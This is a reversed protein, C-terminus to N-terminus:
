YPVNLNVVIDQYGAATFKVQNLGSPIYFPNFQAIIGTSYLRSTQAGYYTWTSTGYPRWYADVRVGTNELQIKSHVNNYIAPTAPTSTYGPSQSISAGAVSNGGPQAPPRKVSISYQIMRIPMAAGALLGAAGASGAVLAAALAIRSATKTIKM